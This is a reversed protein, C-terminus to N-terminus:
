VLSVEAQVYMYVTYLVLFRFSDVGGNELHGGVRVIGKFGVGERLRKTPLFM